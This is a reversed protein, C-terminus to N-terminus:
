TGLMCGMVAFLVHRSFSAVVGSVFFLCDIKSGCLQRASKLPTLRAKAHPRTTWLIPVTEHDATDVDLVRAVQSNAPVCLVAHNVM